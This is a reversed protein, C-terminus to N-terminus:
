LTIIEREGTKGALYAWDRVEKRYQWVEAVFPLSSFWQRVSDGALNETDAITEGILRALRSGAVVLSVTQRGKDGHYAVLSSLRVVVGKPEAPCGCSRVVRVAKQRDHRVLVGLLDDITTADEAYNELTALDTNMAHITLYASEEEGGHGKVASVTVIRVAGRVVALFWWSASSHRHNNVVVLSGGRLSDLAETTTGFQGTLIGFGNGTTLNDAHGVGIKTTAKVRMTEALYDRDASIPLTVSDGLRTFLQSVAVGVVATITDTTTDDYLGLMPCTYHDAYETAEAKTLGESQKVAILLDYTNKRMVYGAKNTIGKRAM